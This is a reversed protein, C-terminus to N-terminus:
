TVATPILERAWWFDDGDGHRRMSEHKTEWILFEACWWFRGVRDRWACL